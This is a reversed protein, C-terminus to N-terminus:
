PSNVQDECDEPAPILGEVDREIYIRSPYEGNAADSDYGGCCGIIVCATGDTFELKLYGDDPHDADKMQIASCITKGILDNFEM